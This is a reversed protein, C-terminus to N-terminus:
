DGGSSFNQGMKVLTTQFTEIKSANEKSDWFSQKDTENGAVLAIELIVPRLYSNMDGGGFDFDYFTGGGVSNPLSTGGQKVSPILIRASYIHEMGGPRRAENADDSKLEEGQDDFFRIQRDYADLPSVGGSKKSEFPTLQLEGLIQQSIRTKIAKDGAETMTMMGQPIMGLLTVIAVAAIAMAITVEILSFGDAGARFKDARFTKM